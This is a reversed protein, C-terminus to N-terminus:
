KKGPMPAAHNKKEEQMATPTAKKNLTPDM